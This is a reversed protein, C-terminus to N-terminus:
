SFIERLMRTVEGYHAELTPLIIAYAAQNKLELFIGYDMGHALYIAVIDRALQQSFGRLTQRADGTQDTWPANDKAYNELVPAFYDAVANIADYVRQEYRRMGQIVIQDTGGWDIRATM